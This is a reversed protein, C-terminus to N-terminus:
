RFPNEELLNESTHYIIYKYRSVHWQTRPMRPTGVKWKHEYKLLTAFVFEYITIVRQAQFIHYGTFTVYNKTTKVELGKKCWYMM